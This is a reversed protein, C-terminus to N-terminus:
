DDHKGGWVHDLHRRFEKSLQKGIGYSAPEGRETLGSSWKGCNCRLKITTKQQDREGEIILRHETM